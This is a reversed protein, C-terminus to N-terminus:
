EHMCHECKHDLLTKIKNKCVASSKIDAEMRDEGKADKADKRCCCEQVEESSSSLLLYGRSKGTASDIPELAAHLLHLLVWHAPYKFRAVDMILVMDAKAHYGGIPSFHGSGSQRLTERSYAVVMINRPKEGPMSCVNRVDDRFEELSVKNGHKLEVTAGNCRALCAVKGLTIGSARVKELPDCCDLMSEDFWRWVGQWVRKPDLLLANLAM